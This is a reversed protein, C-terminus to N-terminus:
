SDIILVKLSFLVIKSSQNITPVPLWNTVLSTPRGGDSRSQRYPQQNTYNDIIVTIQLVRSWDAQVSISLNTSVIIIGRIM